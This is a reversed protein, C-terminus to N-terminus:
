LASQRHSIKDDRIRCHPHTNISKKKKLLFTKRIIPPGRDRLTLAVEDPWITNHVSPPGAGRTLIDDYTVQQFLRCMDILQRRERLKDIPVVCDNSEESWCPWSPILNPIDIALQM